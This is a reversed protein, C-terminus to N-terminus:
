YFYYAVHFMVARAEYRPGTTWLARQVMALAGAVWHDGPGPPRWDFGAGLTGVLDLTVYSDEDQFSWSPYSVFADGGFRTQVGLAAHLTPIYQVGLRATIGTDLRLWSLPRVFRSQEDVVFEAARPALQGWTLHAEYAYWDNTAYTARAGFGVFGATDTADPLGPDGFTALGLHLQAHFSTEAEDASAPRAGLAIGLAACLFLPLVRHRPVSGPRSTVEPCGPASISPVLFMSEGIRTM